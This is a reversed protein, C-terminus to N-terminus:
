TKIKLKELETYEWGRVQQNLKEMMKEKEVIVKETSKIAERLQRIESSLQNIAKYVHLM